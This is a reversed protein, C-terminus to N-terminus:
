TTRQQSSLPFNTRLQFQHRPPIATIPTNKDSDTSSNDADIEQITTDIAKGKSKEMGRNTSPTDQNEDGGEKSQRDPHNPHKYPTSVM